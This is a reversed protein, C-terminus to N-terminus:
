ELSPSKTKAGNVEERERTANVDNDGRGPQRALRVTVWYEKEMQDKTDDSVLARALNGDQTFILLGRSDADLRGAVALGGLRVPEVEAGLVEGGRTQNQWTLLKIALKQRAAGTADSDQSVWGSPKHLMISIKRGQEAAAAPVLAVSQHSGVVQGLFAPQGDVLVLGRKIYDNAERRSCMRRKVMLKNIKMSEGDGVPGGGEAQGGVHAARSGTLAVAGSRRAWGGAIACARNMPVFIKLKTGVSQLLLFVGSCSQLLDQLLLCVRSPLLLVSVVIIFDSLPGRSAKERFVGLARAGLVRLAVVGIGYFSEGRLSM